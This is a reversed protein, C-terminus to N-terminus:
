AVAQARAVTVVRVDGDEIVAYRLRAPGDAMWVCPDVMYFGSGELQPQPPTHGVVQWMGALPLQDGYPRFWLPGSRGLIGDPDWDGTELERRVAAQFEQNIHAVLQVPDAVGGRDLRGGYRASVGAHTILVGQSCAAAQWRPSGSTRAAGHAPRSARHSDLAAARGQRAAASVGASATRPAQAARAHHTDPAAIPTVTPVDPWARRADPWAGHTDHAVRALGPKVGAGVVLDMLLPRFRRSEPDTGWMDFDLLVAMEHNGVLVTTAYRQVVDLCGEPDPGRDLLDGAYVFEDRGPLFGGHELAEEIVNPYGHADSLVFTRAPANVSV